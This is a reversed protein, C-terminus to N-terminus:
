AERTASDIYKYVLVPVGNLVLSDVSSESMAAFMDESIESPVQQGSDRSPDSREIPRM